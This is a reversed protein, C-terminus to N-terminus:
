GEPQPVWTRPPERNFRIPTMNGCHVCKTRVRGEIEKDLYAIFERLDRMRANWYAEHCSLVELVYLPNLMAGCDRCEVCALTTDVLYPGRHRCQDTSYKRRNVTITRPGRIHVGHAVLWAEIALCVEDGTLHISTGKITGGEERCIHKEINM